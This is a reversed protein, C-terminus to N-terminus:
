RPEALGFWTGRSSAACQTTTPVFTWAQFFLRFQDPLVPPLSVEARGTADATVFIPASVLGTLFIDCSSGPDPFPTGVHTGASSALVLVARGPVLNSITIKQEPDPLLTTHARPPAHEATIRPMLWEGNYLEATGAGFRHMHGVNARVFYLGNTEDSVYIVGSDQKRYVSFAGPYLNNWTPGGHSATSSSFCTDVQALIQNPAPNDPRVDYLIFGEQWSSVYGTYGLGQLGMHRMPQAPYILDKVPNSGAVQMLPPMQALTLVANANYFAFNRMDYVVTAVDGISSYLYDGDASMWTSHANGTGPQSAVFACWNPPTWPNVPPNGAPLNTVDLFSIHTVNPTLYESVVARVTGGDRQLHVDFSPIVGGGSLWGKWVALLQPAAGNPGNVDYIFLGNITPVYLHGRQEDVTLRYSTGIAPLPVDPLQTVTVSTTPTTSVAVRAVRLSPRFANSEYVYEGFSATGRHVARVSDLLVWYDPVVRTPGNQSVHHADVIVLGNWASLLAFERGTAPDTHGTVFSFPRVAPALQQEGLIGLVSARYCANPPLPWQWGRPIGNCDPNNGLQLGTLSCGTPDTPAQATLTAAVLLVTLVSRKM